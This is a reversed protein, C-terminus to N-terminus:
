INFLMYNFCLKLSSDVLTFSLSNKGEFMLTGETNERRTIYLHLTRLTYLKKFGGPFMFLFNRM